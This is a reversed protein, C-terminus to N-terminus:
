KQIAGISDGDGTFVTAHIYKEHKYLLDLAKHMAKIKSSCQINVSMPPREKRLCGYFGEDQSLMVEFTEM